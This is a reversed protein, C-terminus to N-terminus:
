IKRRQTRVQAQAHEQAFVTHIQTCSDADTRGQKHTLKGTHADMGLHAQVHNIIFAIQM